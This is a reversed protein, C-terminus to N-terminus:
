TRVENMGGKNLEKEFAKLRKHVSILEVITTWNSVLYQLSSEVQGFARVTQQMVGFTILGGIITPGMIIYPVLVGFQLYSWKGIGFYMYHFYLKFYNKRVDAWLDKVTKPQMMQDNDEGHVLEKRYRAEVVQNNFELGPLKMGLIALGVTGILAFGIAGIVLAHPVTGLLPVVTIAKSLGWLIPVFAILTMVARVFGVGLTELLIALKKTDEQVRQSAGEIHRLKSWHKVYHDNMSQRWRFVYHQTFYDTLVAVLIFVGAITGFEWMLAWYQTGEITGPNALAVQILDYFSGFWENIKVNVQVQYWLSGIIALAGGWAWLLYQKTAFFKWM